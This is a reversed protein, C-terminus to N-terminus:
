FKTVKKSFSKSWKESWFFDFSVMSNLANPESISVAQKAGTAGSVFPQNSEEYHSQHKMSLHDFM